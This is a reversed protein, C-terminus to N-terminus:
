RLDIFLWKKREVEHSTLLDNTLEVKKELYTVRAEYYSPSILSLGFQGVVELM